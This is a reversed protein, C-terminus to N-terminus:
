FFFFFVARVENGDRWRWLWLWVIFKVGNSGGQDGRELSVVTMWGSGSTVGSGGCGYGSILFRLKKTKKGSGKEFRWMEALVAVAV